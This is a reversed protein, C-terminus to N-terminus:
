CCPQRVHPYLEPWGPFYTTQRHFLQSETDRTRRRVTWTEVTSHATSWLSLAGCILFADLLTNFILMHKITEWPSVFIIGLFMTMACLGLLASFQLHPLIPRGSIRKLLLILAPVPLMFFLPRAARALIHEHFDSWLAFASSHAGIPMGPSPDFNGLPPRMLVSGPIERSIHRWLRAPRTAYFRDITLISVKKGIIGRSLLDLYLSGPAWAGKGSLAALSPDLGLAILDSAPAKSEPLVASLGYGLHDRDENLHYYGELLVALAMHSHLGFPRFPSARRQGAQPRLGIDVFEFRRV